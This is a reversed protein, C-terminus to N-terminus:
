PGTTIHDDFAISDIATACGDGPSVETTCDISAFSAEALSGTLDTETSILVLTGGSAFYCRTESKPASAVRAWLRACAACSGPNLDPGELAYTGPVVGGSFVGRERFVLELTVVPLPEEASVTGLWYLPPDNRAFGVVQGVNGYGARVGCTALYPATDLSPTDPAAADIDGPADEGDAPFGADVTDVPSSHSGPQECGLCTTFL